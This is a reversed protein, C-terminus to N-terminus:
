ITYVFLGAPPSDTDRAVMIVIHEDDIMVDQLWQSLPTDFDDEADDDTLGREQLLEEAGKFTVKTKLYRTNSRLAERFIVQDMRGGPATDSLSEHIERTGLLPYDESRNQDFDIVYLNKSYVKHGQTITHDLCLAACRQRWILASYVENGFHPIWSAYSGWASWPIELPEQHESSVSNPGSKNAQRPLKLLIESSVYLWGRALDEFAPDILICIQRNDSSSQYVRPRSHSRTAETSPTVANGDIGLFVFDLVKYPEPLMFRAIPQNHGPLVPYIELCGIAVFKYPLNSEICQSVVFYDESIFRMYHFSNSPSEIHGVKIGTMWDWIMTLAREPINDGGIHFSVMRGHVHLLDDQLILQYPTVESADLVIIPLVPLVALPHPDNTSM